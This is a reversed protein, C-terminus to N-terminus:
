ESQLKHGRLHQRAAQILEADEVDWISAPEVGRAWTALNCVLQGFRWDPYRTRMAALAEFLENDQNSSM